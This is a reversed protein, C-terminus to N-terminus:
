RGAKWASQVWRRWGPLDTRTIRDQWLLTHELKTGQAHKEYNGQHKPWQKASLLHTYVDQCSHIFLICGAGHKGNSNDM